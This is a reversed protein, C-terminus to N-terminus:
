PIPFKLLQNFHHLFNSPTSVFCNNTDKPLTPKRNKRRLLKLDLNIVRFKNTKQSVEAKVKLTIHLLRM